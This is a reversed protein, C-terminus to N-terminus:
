EGKTVTITYTRSTLGTGSVVITVTNEGTEWTAASGSSHESGNVTIAVDAGDDGTASITNTANTTTATYSTVDPDFEPSLTLSGISLASLKAATEAAPIDEGEDEEDGSGSNVPVYVSNYWNNYTEANTDEGTKSKVLGDSRADATLNLTETVPTISAEKTQSSVSPRSASCQYMCHRIKRIDGDFEFLLAFYVQDTLDANEVLVGNADKTEQLYEERFWDPILAMELSGTYGNNSITRFYVIGDAYFPTNDGEADLTLSVAGPIHRPTAYEFTGDVKITLKAVHVNKLNYKIKNSKNAM